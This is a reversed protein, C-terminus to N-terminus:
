PMHKHQSPIGSSYRIQPSLKKAITVTQGAGNIQRIRNRARILISNLNRTLTFIYWMWLICCIFRSKETTLVGRRGAAGRGEWGSSRTQIRRRSRSKDERSTENQYLYSEATGTIEM